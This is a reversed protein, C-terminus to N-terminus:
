DTGEHEDGEKGGTMSDIPLIVTVTTGRGLESSIQIDGKMEKVIGYCISLGLGTGKGLPKTTYFPDFVKKLEERAIGTGTDIIKVVISKQGKETILKLRGGTTEMADLANCILNLLVQQLQSLDGKVVPLNVALKKDIQIGLQKIRHNVLALTDELLENLNIDMMHGAPQRAFNLLSGTIKKGRETQKCIVQLYKALEGSRYLEEIDEQDIRELLDEAYASVTALPNNIEHAVGAALLGLAAMKETQILEASKSRIQQTMFNFADVLQGIEDDTTKPLVLNLEGAAVRKAGQELTEIPKTFRLAFLISIIVVLVVVLITGILFKVSLAAVPRYAERVPIEVVAAWGLQKIPAYVGLVEEGTFSVYRLPIRGANEKGEMFQRVALSSSVPTQRLVQSFDEHAILKGERDVVFIAGKQNGYRTIIRNMISRLNVQVYFGGKIERTLRNKIPIILSVMTRQDATLYHKVMGKQTLLKPDVQSLKQPTIVERKSVRMVEIGRSNLLSLDEVAPIDRLFIYLFKEQSERDQQLLTEGYINGATSIKDEIGTILQGLDTSIGKVLDTNRQQISMLLDQEATRVNLYGLSALPLISMTIGFALVKVKIRNWVKM